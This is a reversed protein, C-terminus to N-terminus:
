LVLYKRYLQRIKQNEQMNALNVHAKERSINSLTVNQSATKLAAELEDLNLRLSKTNMEAIVAGM